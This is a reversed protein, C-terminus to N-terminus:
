ERVEKDTILLFIDELSPEKVSINHVGDSNQTIISLATQMSKLPDQALCVFHGKIVKGDKFAINLEEILKKNQGSVEISLLNGNGHKRRLEALNGQTVVQGADIIIFSDCIKEAEDLYHDTLVIAYDGSDALSSIFDMLLHRSQADIGPTPEDLFILKPNHIISIALNLRRKYGGSLNRALTKLEPTLKLSNVLFETRQKKMAAPLGYIDASMELNELINLDDWIVIDQPMVGLQMRYEEALHDYRKGDIELYGSSPKTQGTLIKIATSKGAGNPGLIGLVKGQQIDIDLGKLVQRGSYTKTISRASINMM